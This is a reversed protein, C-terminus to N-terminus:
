NLWQTTTATFTGLQKVASNGLNMYLKCRNASDDAPPSNPCSNSAVWASGNWVQCSYTVKECQTEGSGRVRYYVRPDVLNTGNIGATVRFTFKSSSYIADLSTSTRTAAGDFSNLLAAWFGFDDEFGVLIQSSIAGVDRNNPLTLSIFTEVVPATVIGALDQLGTFNLADTLRIEASNKLAAPLNPNQRPDSSLTTTPGPTPAAPAAPANTQSDKGCAVAVLLVATLLAQSFIKKTRQEM